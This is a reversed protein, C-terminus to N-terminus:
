RTRLAPSIAADPSIVLYESGRSLPLKLTDDPPALRKPVQVNFPIHESGSSFRFLCRRRRLLVSKENQRIAPSQAVSESKGQRLRHM